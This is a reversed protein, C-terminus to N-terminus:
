YSPIGHTINYTLEENPVIPLSKNGLAAVMLDAVMRYACVRILMAVVDHM